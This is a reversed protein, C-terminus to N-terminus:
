SRKVLAALKQQYTERFAQFRETPASLALAYPATGAELPMAMCSIGAAFEENDFAIGEARIRVFEAQLAKFDTLTNDTLKALPQHNLLYEATRATAAYALLVKGAARAHAHLYQGHPMEASRKANSGGVVEIIVIEGQWWGVVYCTEGTESALSRVLPLMYDPASFQRSFAEALAGVRLGLRYNRRDDRSIFGEDELTHVLHYATQREVGIAEAIERVSLGQDSRAIATLINVGRVVSNIQFRGAKEKIEAM